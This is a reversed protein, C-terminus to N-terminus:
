IIQGKVSLTIARLQGTDEQIHCAICAGCRQTAGVPSLVRESDVRALRFPNLVSSYVAYALLPTFLMSRMIM